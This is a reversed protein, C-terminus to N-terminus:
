NLEKILEATSFIKVKSQKKFSKEDSWIPCSLFLSLAFYPNDKTHPSLKFAKSLFDKYKSEPVIKIEDKILSFLGLFEAENIGSFKKIREKDSFLEEILYEPSLLECDMNLLEEIIYKRASDKRFFSFIINADVILLKPVPM